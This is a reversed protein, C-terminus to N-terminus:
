ATPSTDTRLVPLKVSLSDMLVKLALLEATTSSAPMDSATPEKAAPLMRMLPLGLMVVPVPPRATSYVPLMLPLVPTM